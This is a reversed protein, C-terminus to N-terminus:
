VEHHLGEGRTCYVSSRCLICDRNKSSIGGRHYNYGRSIIKGRYVLVSGVKKDVPSKIAQRAAEEICDRM